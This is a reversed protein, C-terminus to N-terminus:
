FSKSRNRTVTKPSPSDRIWPDEPEPEGMVLAAMPAVSRDYFWRAAVSDAVDQYAWAWKMFALHAERERSEKNEPFLAVICCALVLLAGTVFPHLQIFDLM